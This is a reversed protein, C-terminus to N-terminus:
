KKKTKNKKTNNIKTKNQKKTKNKKLKSKLIKLVKISTDLAGECWSTIKFLEGCIYLNPILNLMKKSILDSDYNKESGVGM